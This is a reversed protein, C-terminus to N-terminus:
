EKRLGIDLLLSIKKTTIFSESAMLAGGGSVDGAQKFYMEAATVNM